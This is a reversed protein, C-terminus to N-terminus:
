KGPEILAYLLKEIQARMEDAPPAKSEAASDAAEGDLLIPNLQSLAAEAAANADQISEPISKPGIGCGAVFVGDRSSEIGAGNDRVFM